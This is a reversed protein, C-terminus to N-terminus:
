SGSWQTPANINDRFGEDPIGFHINHIVEFLESHGPLGQATPNHPDFATESIGKRRDGM